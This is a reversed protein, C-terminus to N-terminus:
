LGNNTPSSEAATSLRRISCARALITCCRAMGSSACPHRRGTIGVRQALSVSFVFVNVSHTYTYYDFSTVRLLNEFAARESFMYNVTNEVLQQSRQIAEGSRPDQMVEKVLNQASGYLITSKVERKIENDSLIAGLNSEMYRLYAAEDASHVYLHAIGSEALRRRVDETFPLDNSRYLVPTEGPRSQVYLEFDTVTDVRLSAVQIPLYTAGAATKVTGLTDSTTPM